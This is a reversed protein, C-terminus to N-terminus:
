DVNKELRNESVIKEKAVNPPIEIKEYLDWFKWNEDSYIAYYKNTEDDHFLQGDVFNKIPTLDYSLTTSQVISPIVIFVMAAFLCFGAVAGESIKGCVWLVIGFVSVAIFLILMTIM